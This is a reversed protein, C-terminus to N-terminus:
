GLIEVMESMVDFMRAKTQMDLYPSSILGQEEDVGCMETIESMTSDTYGNRIMTQELETESSSTELAFEWVDMFTNVADNCQQEISVRGANQGPNWDKSFVTEYTGFPSDYYVTGQVTIGTDRSLIRDVIAGLVGTKRITIDADVIIEDNAPITIYQPIDVEAVKNDGAYVLVDIRDLEANISNPNYMCLELRFDLGDLYVDCVEVDVTQFAKHEEIDMSISFAVFLVIIVAILAPIALFAKNFGKKAPEATKELPSQYKRCTKFMAPVITM